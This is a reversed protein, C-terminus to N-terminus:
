KGYKEGIVQTLTFTLKLESEAKDGYYNLEEANSPVVKLGGDNLVLCKLQIEMKPIVFQVPQDQSADIAQNLGENAESLLSSILSFLTPFTSTM